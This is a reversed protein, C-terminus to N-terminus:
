NVIWQIYCKVFLLVSGNVAIQPSIKGSLCLIRSPQTEGPKGHSRPEGEGNLVGAGMWTPLLLSQPQVISLWWQSWSAFGLFCSHGGLEAPVLHLEHVKQCKPASRHSGPHFLASQCHHGMVRLKGGSRMSGGHYVLYLSLVLLLQWM